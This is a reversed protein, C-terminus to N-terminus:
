FYFRLALTGKLCGKILVKVEKPSQELGNRSTTVTIKVKEVPKGPLVPVNVPKKTGTVPVTKKQLLFYNISAYIHLIQRNIAPFRFSM